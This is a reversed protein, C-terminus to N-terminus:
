KVIFRKRDAPTPSPAPSPTPPPRNKIQERLQELEGASFTGSFDIRDKREVPVMPASGRVTGEIVLLITRGVNGMMTERLKWKGQPSLYLRLSSPEEEPQYSIGALDDGTLWPTEDAIEFDELPIIAEGEDRYLPIIRAPRRFHLDLRIRRPTPSSQPIATPAPSPPGDEPKAPETEPRADPILIAAALLAAALYQFKRPNM